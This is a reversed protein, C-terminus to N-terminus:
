TSPTLSQAVATFTDTSEPRSIAVHQDDKVGRVLEQPNRYDWCKRCAMVGDWQKRLQSAKFKFGCTDCIVNNEGLALYDAQGM